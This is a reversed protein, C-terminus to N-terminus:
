ALGPFMHAAGLGRWGGAVGGTLRFIHQSLEMTGWINAKDVLFTLYKIRLGKTLKLHPM